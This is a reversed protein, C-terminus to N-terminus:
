APAWCLGYHRGTAWQAPTPAEQQWAINLPDEAIATAADQCPTDMVAHAAEESPAQDGELEVVAIARFAHEASCPVPSSGAADPSATRCLGYLDRGQEGSLLGRTTAPLVALKRAGNLAVVDCRLWRAGADSEAISPTYWTPTLVSLRPDGGLWPELGATCTTLAQQAAAQSDIALLHGDQVLDLRQVLYTQATHPKSCAVARAPAADALAQRRTMAYCTEPKPAPAASVPATPTTGPSATGSAASSSAAGTASGTGSGTGSGAASGSSTTADSSATSGSSASASGTAQQDGGSSCAALVALSVVVAAATARSRLTM